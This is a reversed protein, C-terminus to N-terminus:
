LALVKFLLYLIDGDTRAPFCDCGEFEERGDLPTKFFRLAKDKM